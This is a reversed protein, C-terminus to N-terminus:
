RRMRERARSWADRVRTRLARWRSRVMLTAGFLSAALLQALFSGTGPDVYAYAPSPVLLTVVLTLVLSLLSFRLKM